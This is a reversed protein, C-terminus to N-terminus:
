NQSSQVAARLPVVPTAAMQKDLKVETKMPPRGLRPRIKMEWILKLIAPITRAIIKIDLWLSMERLYQLDLEMMQEFTTNNKGSVQWLGTLGPPAECRRKQRKSFLDFEYSMCPRPGVLSMEGRLINFLQPLEDLGMARLWMGGPILREDGGFDLKRTLQNATMLWKLHAQHVGADADVTMSRFKLCKFRGGMFGVRPQRFFAPGPSVIKIFVFVIMGVPISVPTSLVVLTVDLFRKWAPLFALSTATEEELPEAQAAHILPLQM